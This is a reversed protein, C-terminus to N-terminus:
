VEGWLERADRYREEERFSRAIADASILGIVLRISGASSNGV